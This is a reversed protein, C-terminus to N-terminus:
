IGWVSTFRVFGAIGHTHKVKLWGGNPTPDLLELMVNQEAHALVPANDQAQQYIDTAAPDIITRTQSLSKAEVWFIGGEANRVKLWDGLNVIVEVPYYQNLLFVKTASISPADFLVAKPVAVSRFDTAAALAPIFLFILGLVKKLM